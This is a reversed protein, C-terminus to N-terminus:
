SFVGLPSFHVGIFAMKAIAIDLTKCVYILFMVKRQMFNIYTFHYYLIVCIVEVKRPYSWGNAGMPGHGSPLSEGMNLSWYYIQRCLFLACFAMTQLSLRVASFPGSPRHVWVWAKWYVWSKESWLSYLLPQLTVQAPEPEPPGGASAEVLTKDVDVIRCIESSRPLHKFFLSYSYGRRPVQWLVM